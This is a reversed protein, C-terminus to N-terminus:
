EIMVTEIGKTNPRSKKTKDVIDETLLRSRTRITVAIINKPVEM